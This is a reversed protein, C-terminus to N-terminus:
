FGSVSFMKLFIKLFPQNKLHFMQRVFLFPSSAFPATPVRACTIGARPSMPGLSLQLIRGWPAGPAPATIWCGGWALSVPEAPGGSGGRLSPFPMKSGTKPPSQLMGSGGRSSTVLLGKRMEAWGLRKVTPTCSSTPPVRSSGVGGQSCHPGHCGLVPPHPAGFVAGGIGLPPSLGLSPCLGRLPCSCPVNPALVSIEAWWQLSPTRERGYGRPPLVGETWPCDEGQPPSQAGKSPLTWSLQVTGCRPGRRTDRVLSLSSGRTGASPVAVLPSLTVGDTKCSTSSAPQSSVPAPATM